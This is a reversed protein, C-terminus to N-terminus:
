VAKHGIIKISSVAFTGDAPDRSPEAGPLVPTPPASGQNGGLIDGLISPGAPPPAGATSTPAIAPPRSTEQVIV